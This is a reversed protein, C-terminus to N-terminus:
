KLVLLTDWYNPPLGHQPTRAHKKVEYWQSLHELIRNIGEDGMAAHTHEHFEVSIQTAIPGPWVNLIAYESGECDLKVADWHHIGLGSMLLTIDQCDVDITPMGFATGTTEQLFNGTGNGYMAYRTKFSRRHSVLAMRMFTVGPIGPDVVNPDPDLCWIKHGSLALHKALHFGRCGVDLIKSETQFLDLDFSHEDILQVNM